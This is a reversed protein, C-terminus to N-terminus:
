EKENPNTNHKLNGAKKQTDMQVKFERANQANRQAEYYSKLLGSEIGMQALNKATGLTGKGYNLATKGAGKLNGRGAQMGISKMNSLFGAAGRASNGGPMRSAVDWAGKMRMAKTPMAKLQNSLDNGNLAPQGSSIAQALNPLKYVLMCMIGLSFALQMFTLFNKQLDLSEGGSVFNEVASTLMPELIATVFAVISVKTAYHILSSIAREFLFKTPKFMGISMTLMTFIAMVWFEVRVVMIQASIVLICAVIVLFIVVALILAFPSTTFSIQSFSNWTNEIIKFANGMIDDPMLISNEGGGAIYGIREFSAFVAHAIGMGLIWNTILFLYMAMKLANSIMYKIIDDEIKLMLTIAVDIAWACALIKVCIPYLFEAGKQCKYIFSMMMQGLFNASNPDPKPEAISIFSSDPVIFMYGFYIGLNIIVTMSLIMRLFTTTTASLEGFALMGASGVILCTVIIRPVKDTLIAGDTDLSGNDYTGIFKEFIDDWALEPTQAFCISSLLLLIGITLLIIKTKKM